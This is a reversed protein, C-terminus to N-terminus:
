NYERPYTSGTGSGNSKKRTTGPRRIQLWSSQGSSWLLPRPSNYAQSIHFSLSKRSLLSVATLNEAKRAPPFIVTRLIIKMSVETLSETPGLIMTRAPLILETLIDFSRFLFRIQVSGVQLITGRAGCHKSM